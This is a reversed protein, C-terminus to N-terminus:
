GKNRSKKKKRLEGYVCLGGQCGKFVDIELSKFDRNVRGLIAGVEPM